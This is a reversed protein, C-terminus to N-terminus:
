GGLKVVQQRVGVYTRGSDDTLDRVVFVSDGYPAHSIATGPVTVVTETAGLLVEARVFMGPRLAGGPNALTAQAKVNRTGEDVVADIATIRGTYAAGDGDGTTVRVKQGRRLRAAHHQPIGVDVHIPNLSQLPVV